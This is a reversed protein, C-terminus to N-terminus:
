FLLKDDNKFEIIELDKFIVESGQKQENALQIGVQLCINGENNFEDSTYYETSKIGHVYICAHTDFAFIEM